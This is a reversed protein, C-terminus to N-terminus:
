PVIGNKTLNDLVERLTDYDQDKAPIFKTVGPTVANMIKAGDPFDVLELLAARLETVTREDLRDSAILVHDSIPPSTAIARLGRKEYEFFVDEKVAGADFRGALVALVVNVHGDINSASALNERAIGVRLLMDTPVLTGMTSEPDGFAFHKGRVDELVRIASDERVFIKGHFVSSGNIVQRALLRKIGSRKSLAVYSAPGLYAFDVDNKGIRDIHDAYTKSISLNVPRHLRQALYNALPTFNEILQTPPKFPHVAFTLASDDAMVRTGLAVIVGCLLMRLRTTM